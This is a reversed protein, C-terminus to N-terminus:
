MANNDTKMHSDVGASAPPMWLGSPQGQLDVMQPQMQNQQDSENISNFFPHDLADKASIRKTHDLELM